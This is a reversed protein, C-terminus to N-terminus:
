RNMRYQFRLSMMSDSHAESLRRFLSVDLGGERHLNFADIVMGVGDIVMRMSVLYTGGDGNEHMSM